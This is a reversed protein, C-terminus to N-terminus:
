TVHGGLVAEKLTVPLTVHIDDGDRTFFPQPNIHIEILADGDPGGNWGAGGQGKLRLTQGDEIGAPITVDLTRGEPLTLTRTAGTVADLFNVALAYRADAGRMRLPEGGHNFFDGFIDDFPHGDEPGARYRGGEAADAYRCYPPPTAPTSIPVYQKSLTALLAAENAAGKVGLVELM